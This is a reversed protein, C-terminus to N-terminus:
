AFTIEDGGHEIGVELLKDAGLKLAEALREFVGVRPLAVIVGKATQMASGLEPKENGFM